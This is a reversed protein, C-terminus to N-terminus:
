EFGPARFVEKGGVFTLLVKTQAIQDSPIITLDRDIVILDAYKGPELSGIRDELNLSYAANITFARIATAIDLGPDDGLRGEYIPTLPAPNERTVGIQMARWEDLADVPWDSGFAVRAGAQHFKGATELYPFREPGIYPEVSDITDPARKGWQLSLVPVVDLQAFRAYDQPTMMENHAFGPRFAPADHRQRVTEVANLAIHVAQDGDTHLHASLGNAVLADLMGTVLDQNYYLSGSKESPVWHPQDATGVNHLYPEVLAGTQAPAQIVGDVFIKARDITIGPRVATGARGFDAAHKRITAVAAAPDAAQEPSFMIAFVGRVSLDGSQYITDFAALDGEGSGASFITTVGQANVEKIAARVSALTNAAQEEPSPAPEAGLLLGIAADLFIGTANGQADRVIEGGGPNPTDRTIGAAKMAATNAALTHFDNAIVVVPRDTDLRDLVAASLDAGAPKTAQRFWAPVRLWDQGDGRAKDKLCATIRAMIEDITWAQYNLSCATLMEGGGAPHMHADILGPLVLRGELDIVRTANGIQARVETDSGVAAIVGDRIAVAQAVSGAPDVTYIKGNVFVTDATQGQAQAATACAGFSCAALVVASMRLARLRSFPAGARGDTM